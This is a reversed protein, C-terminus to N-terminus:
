RLIMKVMGSNWIKQARDRFLRLLRVRKKVFAWDEDAQKGNKQKLVESLIDTDLLALSTTPASM